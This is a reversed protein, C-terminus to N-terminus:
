YNNFYGQIKDTDRTQALVLQLLIKAKHPPLDDGAVVSLGEDERRPSVIGGLTRTTRVFVIGQRGAESMVAALRQPVNGHGFGAMIVGQAGGALAASLISQPMGVYCPIIWVSPLEALGACSLESSYTHCRLSSHYFRPEGNQLSGICDGQRSQFADVHTADTKEASRADLIRGNMAILVGYLGAEACAALRVAELLNLPGDASLATAPRMSGVLVIPKRSHIVLNLFYATEEMTDTGHTIVVGDVDDRDVVAQIRGALELWLSESMDTSDINCVQEGQVNAYDSIQPVAQLLDQVSMEGAQYGILETGSGAKGAITGGCALVYINAKEM